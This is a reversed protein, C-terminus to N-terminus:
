NLQLFLDAIYFYVLVGLVDAITTIFPASMMAPDFGLFTFLFPLAAGAVTSFISLFLLSVGVILAILFNGQFFYAWIVAGLGLVLGLLTGAVAERYVVWLVGRDRIAETNLGRIVVTSSQCGIDGATDNLLPIFAALVVVREILVEQGKIIISALATTLLVIILWLARQRVMGMLSSRFYRDGRSQVGGLAHIDQTTKEHLIDIADDVTVIGVLRNETDVVPVALFDYRQLLRAVEEQPTDTHVFILHREMIEGITQEPQATVLTRLSLHGTLRHLADTVYLSYITESTPALRRISEFAQEVTWEEKLSVYEPTMIRGATDPKYGLLLATSQRQQLTMHELLRRVVKAPLEDFLKARDDPSMKDVIDIVDQRKFDEILAQQVSSDLYEYVEIAKDKPLLRFAIAQIKEPLGEIAEAIDAPQVPMLVTKAAELYGEELLIKLESRVLQRLEKRSVLPNSVSPNSSSNGSM